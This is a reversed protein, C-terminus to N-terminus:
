AIQESGPACTKSHVFSAMREITQFNEPVLDDDSITIKFEHELYTVVHLIGLSDIIGGELLLDDNGIKRTKALPFQAFIFRKIHESTTNRNM